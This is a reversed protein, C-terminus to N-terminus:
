SERRGEREEERGGEKGGKVKREEKGRGVREAALSSYLLFPTTM